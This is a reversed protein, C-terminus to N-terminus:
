GYRTKKESMEDAKVDSVTEHLTPVIFNRIIYIKWGGTVGGKKPGLICLVTGL